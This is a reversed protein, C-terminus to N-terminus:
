DQIANSLERGRATARAVAVAVEPWKHIWSLFAHGEIAFVLTRGKARVSASRLEGRLIALEGVAGRPGIVNVVMEEPPRLRVVELSGSAVVFVADAPEGAHFLYAGPELTRPEVHPTLERIAEDPMGDFFACARLM